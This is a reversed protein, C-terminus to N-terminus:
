VFLVLWNSSRVSNSFAAASTDSCKAAEVFSMSVTHERNHNSTDQLLTYSPCNHYNLMCIKTNLFDEAQSSHQEQVWQSALMHGAGPTSYEDSRIGVNPSEEPHNHCSSSQRNM